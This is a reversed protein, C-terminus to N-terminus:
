EGPAVDGLLPTLRPVWDDRLHKRLEPDRRCLEAGLPILDGKQVREVSRGAHALITAALRLTLEPTLGLIEYHRASSWPDLDERPVYATVLGLHEALESPFVLYDVHRPDDRCTLAFRVAVERSDEQGEVHFASLGDERPKLKLDVAADAVHSLDDAVRDTAWRARNAIRLLLM